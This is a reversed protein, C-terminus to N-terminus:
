PLSSIYLSRSPTLDGRSVVCHDALFDKRNCPAVRTLSPSLQTLFPRGVIILSAVVVCKEVRLSARLDHESRVTGLVVIM